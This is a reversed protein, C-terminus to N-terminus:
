TETSKHVQGSESQRDRNHLQDAGPSYHAPAGSNVCTSLLVVLPCRQPVSGQNGIYDQDVVNGVNKLRLGATRKGNCDAPCAKPGGTPGM